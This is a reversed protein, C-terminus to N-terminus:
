NKERLLLLYLAEAPDTDFGIIEYLQDYTRHYIRFNDSKRVRIGHTEIDKGLVMAVIDTPTIESYFRTQRLQEESLSSIIVDMPSNDPDTSDDWGSEITNRIYVGEKKLSDFVNFAVKAANHFVNLLSM